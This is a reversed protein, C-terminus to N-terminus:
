TTTKTLLIQGSPEDMKTPTRPPRYDAVPAAAYGNAQSRRLAELTFLRQGVQRWVFCVWNEYGRNIGVARGDRGFEADISYISPAPLETTTADM